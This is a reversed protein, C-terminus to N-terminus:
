ALRFLPPRAPDLRDARDDALAQDLAADQEAEDRGTLDLHRWPVAVHEAVVQVPDGDATTLFASRLNPYRELLAQGAARMRDPEVHGSLHLVFQMHYVDFSGE